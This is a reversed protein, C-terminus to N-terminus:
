HLDLSMTIMSGRDSTNDFLGFTWALFLIIVQFCKLDNPFRESENEVTVSWSYVIDNLFVGDRRELLFVFFYFLILDGDGWNSCRRVLM